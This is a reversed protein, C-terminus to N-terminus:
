NILNKPLPVQKKTKILAFTLTISATPSKLYLKGDCSYIGYHKGSSRDGCVKCPIDLLRDGTPFIFNIFWYSIDAYANKTTEWFIRIYVRELVPDKM